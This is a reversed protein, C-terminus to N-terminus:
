RRNRWRRADHAGALTAPRRRPFTVSPSGAGLARGGARPQHMSPGRPPTSRAQRLSRKAHNIWRRPRSRPPGETRAAQPPLRLRGQNGSLTSLPAERTSATRPLAPTQFCCTGPLLESGQIRIGCRQICSGWGGSRILLGEPALVGFLLTLFACWKGWNSADTRRNRCLSANSGNSTTRTVLPGPREVAHQRATSLMVGSLALCGNV